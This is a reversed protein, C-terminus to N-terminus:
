ACKEKIQKGILRHFLLMKNIHKCQWQGLICKIKFFYIRCYKCNYQISSVNQNTKHCNIIFKSWIFLSPFFYYMQKRSEAEKTSPLKCLKATDALINFNIRSRLYKEFIMFLFLISIMLWLLFFLVYIMSWLLLRRPKWCCVSRNLEAYLLFKESM